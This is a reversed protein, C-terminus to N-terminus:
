IHILSLGSYILLTKLFNIFPSMGLLSYLRCGLCLPFSERLHLIQSAPFPIMTLYPSVIHLFHKLSLCLIKPNWLYRYRSIQMKYIALLM